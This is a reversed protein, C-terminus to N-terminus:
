KRVVVPIATCRCRYPQGPNAYFPKQNPEATNPPDAWEFTKGQDSMRSLEAHRKRTPHEPTGPVARWLYRPMGANVYRQGTYAATLLHSEQQALFEAKRSSVGYSKKITKSLTGWRDGAFYSKKVKERLDAIQEKTFGKIKLKLNNEWEKSIHAAESATVQPQVRIKNVNVRFEKDMKFIAKDFLDSFQFDEWPKKEILWDMRGLISDLKNKFKYESATIAHQIDDPLDKLQIRFTKTSNDWTAGLQKLEKSSGADFKGSFIGRNFTLKGSSLALYLGQFSPSANFIKVPFKENKVLPEYILRLFLRKLREEIENLEDKPPKVPRLLLLNQPNPNEM